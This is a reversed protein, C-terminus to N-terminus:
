HCMQVMKVIIAVSKKAAIALADPSCNMNVNEASQKHVAAARISKIAAQRSPSSAGRERRAAHQNIARRPAVRATSRFPVSLMSEKGGFRLHERELAAPTYAVDATTARLATASRLLISAFPESTVREESLPRSTAWNSPMDNSITEITTSTAKATRARSSVNPSQRRRSPTVQRVKEAQISSCRIRGTGASSKPPHEVDASGRAACRSAM